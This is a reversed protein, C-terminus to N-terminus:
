ITSCSVLPLDPLLGGCSLPMGSNFWWCASATASYMFAKLYVSAIIRGVTRDRLYSLHWFLTMILLELRCFGESVVQSVM